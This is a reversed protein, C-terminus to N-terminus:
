CSHSHLTYTLSILYGLYKSLFDSGLPGCVSVIKLYIRIIGADETSWYCMDSDLKQVYQHEYEM